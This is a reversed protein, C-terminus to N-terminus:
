TTSLLSSSGHLILAPNLSILCREVQAQRLAPRCSLESALSTIRHAATCQSCRWSNNCAANLRLGLLDFERNVEELRVQGSLVILKADTIGAVEQCFEYGDMVPMKIDTMILDPEFSRVKELGERGNAATAVYGDFTLWQSILDTIVSGDDVALIKYRTM